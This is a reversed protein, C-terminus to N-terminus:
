SQPDQMMDTFYNNIKDSVEKTTKDFTHQYINKLTNDTRWGGRQMIYKDPVGMAHLISAQYHRLDHFRFHTIGNNKLLRAFHHTIKDPTLEVINGEGPPIRDIVYQPMEVFRTSEVTKTTKTVWKGTSDKVLAKNVRVTCGDIDDYTLACIESRRLSGFAAFMIPLEIKKGAAYQVIKKIDENDPIYLNPKIKQPLTTQLKFNPRYVSFVASLMGHINRVTKPALRSSLDNIEIQIDNQTINHLKMPALTKFYNRRCVKYERLTTPSLVNSKSEIYRDMANGFTIDSLPLQERKAALQYESAMFECTKRDPHTFSKFKKKGAADTGIYVNTRWNGSPLKKAKPM